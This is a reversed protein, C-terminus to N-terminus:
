DSATIDWTIPEIATNLWVRGYLTASGPVGTVRFRMRYTTNISLTKAVSALTIQIGSSAKLISLTTTNADLRYYNNADVYRLEVGADITSASLSFHVTAEEDTTTTSGLQMHVDGTTNSILAEDSTLAVTGTGTKTYTQGNTATGFSGVVNSRIMNDWGIPATSRTGSASYNAIVRWVLQQIDPAAVATSTSLTVKTLISKGSVNTGPTLNPIAGGNTCTQYTSGGDISTQVTNAVSSPNTTLSEDWTIVSNGCTGLSSISTSPSVWTGTTNACIGVDSFNATYVASAGDRNRLGIYGTGTYTTDTQNIYLVNDIYIQHTNGSVVIKFRYWANLALTQTFTVLVITTPAPPTGSSSNSGSQWRLTAPKIEVCYAWSADANQWGTTRYVCGYGINANDVYVDFELTFNQWQGMWDLRSRAESTSANGSTLAFQAGNLAQAPSTNGYLTQNAISGNSFYRTAQNLSLDGGSNALVNTLTGASWGAQTTVAYSVPSALTAAYAPQLQLQVSELTAYVTPDTGTNSFTEKLLINTSAVSQGSLLAPLSAQNTCALYSAGGDISYFLSISTGSPTNQTWQLFSSRVVGVSNLSNSASVRYAATTDYTQAVACTITSYGTNKIITPPNVNTATANTTFLTTSGVVVHRFYATYTGATQNKEFVVTAYKITKGVLGSGSLNITRSYWQNSAFGSIDTHPHCSIGNQDLLGSDRFTTGDTCVFDFGAQESPSTSSVWVDYTVTDSSGILYSGSWFEIYLDGDSVQSNLTGQLKIASLNAPILTNNTAQVGTLTGASFDATTAETITLASGALALELDGDGTNGDGANTSAVVNTLTGQQWETLRQDWRMALPASISEAAGYRTIQDGFITCAYQNTYTQGSIIKDLRYTPDVCNLQWNCTTSPWLRTVQPQNVIGDFITGLVSDVVTIPDYKTFTATGSSDLINLTLTSREDIKDSWKLTNEQVPYVTGNVTATTSM